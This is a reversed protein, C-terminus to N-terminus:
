SNEKEQPCSNVKLVLYPLEIAQRPCLAECRACYRCREPHLLVAKGAQITLSHTPCVLTCRECGDCLNPNIWPMWVLETM